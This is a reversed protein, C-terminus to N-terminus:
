GGLSGDLFHLGWAFNPSFVYTTGTWYANVQVGSFVHDESWQANGAGNSISPSQFDYNVLSLLEKSNPLRWDGAVSKDSLGCAPAALTNASELAALWDIPGFCNANKLWILGTLNDRVTGNRMNQFRPMTPNVPAGKQLEGDQGTNTCPIANGSADYCTTQGTKSVLTPFKQLRRDHDHSHDNSNWEIPAAQITVTSFVLALYALFIYKNM